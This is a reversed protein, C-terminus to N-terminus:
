VLLGGFPFAFGEIYSGDVVYLQRSCPINFPSTTCSVISLVSLKRRSEKRATSPSGGSTTSSSSMRLAASPTSARASAEVGVTSLHILLKSATVQRSEHVLTRNHLLLLRSMAHTSLQNWLGCFVVGSWAVGGDQICPIGEAQAPDLEVYFGSPVSHRHILHRQLDHPLHSPMCYINYIYHSTMIFSSIRAMRNRVTQGRWWRVCGRGQHGRPPSGRPM